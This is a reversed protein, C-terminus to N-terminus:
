DPVLAEVYVRDMVSPELFNDEDLRRQEQFMQYAINFRNLIENHNKSKKAIWIGANSEILPKFHEDKWQFSLQKFYWEFMNSGWLLTARGSRYVKIASSISSTEILNVKGSAILANLNPYTAYISQYGRVMVLSQGELMSENVPIDQQALRTILGATFPYFWKSYTCCAEFEPINATMLVDSSGNKISMYARATPYIIIKCKMRTLACFAKITEVAKGSIGGNETIHANPPFNFSAIEVNILPLDSLEQAPIPLAISALIWLCFM